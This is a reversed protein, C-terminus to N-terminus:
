YMIKIFNDYLKKKIKFYFIILVVSDKGKCLLMVMFRLEWRLCYTSIGLSIDSHILQSSM